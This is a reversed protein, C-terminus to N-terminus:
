NLCLPWCHRNRLQTCIHVNSENLQKAKRLAAVITWNKTLTRYKLLPILDQPRWKLHTGSQSQWQGKKEEPKEGNGDKCNKWVPLSITQTKSQSIAVEDRVQHGAKRSSTPEVLEREGSYPMEDLEGLKLGSLKEGGLDRICEIPYVWGGVDRPQRNGNKRSARLAEIGWGIGSWTVKELWGM